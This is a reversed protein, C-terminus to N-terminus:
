KSEEFQSSAYKLNPVKLYKKSIPLNQFWPYPAVVVGGRSLVFLGAWWSFTSNALMFHNSKSLMAFSEWESFKSPAAFVYNEDESKFSDSMDDSDSSILCDGVPLKNREYYELSLLGLKEMSNRYDGRRIHIAQYNNEILSFGKATCDIWSKEIIPSLENSLTNWRNWVNMGDQFFGRIFLPSLRKKTGMSEPNIIDQVRFIFLFLTMCRHSMTRLKDVIKFLINFGSGNKVTIGHECHEQLELIGVPRNIATKSDQVFCIVVKKNYLQTFHHAANWIFLQNGLGGQNM